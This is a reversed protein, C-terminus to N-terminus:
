VPLYGLTLGKDMKMGRNNTGLLHEMCIQLSHSLTLNIAYKVDKKLNRTQGIRYTLNILNAVSSLHYLSNHQHYWLELHNRKEEQLIYQILRSPLRPGWIEPHQM